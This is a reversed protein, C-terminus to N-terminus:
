LFLKSIKHLFYHKLNKRDCILPSNLHRNAEKYWGLMEEQNLILDFREKSNQERMNSIKEGHCFTQPNFKEYTTSWDPPFILKLMKFNAVIYQYVIFFEHETVSFPECLSKENYIFGCRKALILSKIADLENERHISFVRPRLRKILKIACQSHIVHDLFVKFVATKEQILVSEVYELYRKSWDQRWLVNNEEPKDPLTEYTKFTEKDIISLNFIESHNIKFCDTLLNSKSREHGIIMTLM